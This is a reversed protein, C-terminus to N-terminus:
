TGVTDHVLGLVEPRVGDNGQLFDPQFRFIFADRTRGDPLNTQEFLQAPVVIDYLRYGGSACGRRRTSVTGKGGGESQKVNNVLILLQVKDKFEQIKVQFLVHVGDAVCFTETRHHDLHTEVVAHKM